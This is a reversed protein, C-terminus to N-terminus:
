EIYLIDGDGRGIRPTPTDEGIFLVDSSEEAEMMAMPLGDRRSYKVINPNSTPVIDRLPRSDLPLAFQTQEQLWKEAAFNSPSASNVYALRAIDWLRECLADLMIEPTWDLGIEHLNVCGSYSINPHMIPTLWRVDPPHEPYAYPLRVEVKHVQVEEFGGRAASARSIGRGRFTITYREPPEGTPQFTLITSAARLKELAQHEARLREHSDPM